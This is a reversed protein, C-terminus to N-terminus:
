GFYDPENGQKWKINCGVSPKQEEPVPEGALVKDLAARLDKGD